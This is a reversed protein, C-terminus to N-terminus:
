IVRIFINIAQFRLNIRSECVASLNSFQRRLTLFEFRMMKSLKPPLFLICRKALPQM